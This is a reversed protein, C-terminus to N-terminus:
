SEYLLALESLSISLPILDFLYNLFFQRRKYQKINHYNIMYKQFHKILM